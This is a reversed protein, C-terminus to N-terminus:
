TTYLFLFQCFFLYKRMRRLMLRAVVNFRRSAIVSIIACTVNSTAQEQSAMM